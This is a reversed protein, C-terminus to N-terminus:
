AVSELLDDSAIRAALAQLMEGAASDAEDRTLRNQARGEFVLRAPGAPAPNAIARLCGSVLPAADGDAHLAIPCIAARAATLPTGLSARWTRGGLEVATGRHHSLWLCIRALSTPAPQEARIGSTMQMPNAGFRFNCLFGYGQYLHLLWPARFSWQENPM